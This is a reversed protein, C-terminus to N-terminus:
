LLEMQKWDKVATKVNKIVDTVGQLDLFDKKVDAMIFFAVVIDEGVVARMISIIKANRGYIFHILSDLIFPINKDVVLLAKYTKFEIIKKKGSKLKILEAIVERIHKQEVLKTIHTNENFLLEAFKREKASLSSIIEKYSKHM